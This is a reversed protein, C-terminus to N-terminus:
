YMQYNQVANVSSLTSAAQDSKPFSVALFIAAVVVAFLVGFVPNNKKM